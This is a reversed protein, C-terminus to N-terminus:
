LPRNEKPAWRHRRIKDSSIEGRRQGKEEIKADVESRRIVLRLRHRRRGTLARGRGGARGGARGSRTRTCRKRRIEVSWMRTRTVGCGCYGLWCRRKSAQTPKPPQPRWPRMTPQKCDYECHKPPLFPPDRRKQHPETSWTMALSM